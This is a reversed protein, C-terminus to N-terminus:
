LWSWAKQSGDGSLRRSLPVLFVAFGGVVYVFDLLPGFFLYMSAMPVSGIESLVWAFLSYRVASFAFDFVLCVLVCAVRQRTSFPLMLTVAGLLIPLALWVMLVSRLYLRSFAVAEYGLRGTFLMYAATVGILVLNYGGIFRIPGWVWRAKVLFIVGAVSALFWALLGGYATPPITFSMPRLAVNFYSDSVLGFGTSSAPVFALALSTFTRAIDSLFLLLTTELVILFLLSAFLSSPGSHAPRRLARHPRVMLPPEPASPSPETGLTPAKV